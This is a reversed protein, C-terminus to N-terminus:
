DLPSLLNIVIDRELIGLCRSLAIKELIAAHLELTSESFFTAEKFYDEIIFEQEM